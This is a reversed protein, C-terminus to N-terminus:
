SIENVCSLLWVHAGNAVFSEGTGFLEFNMRSRMCTIISSEKYHKGNLQLLKIPCTFSRVRAIDTAFREGVIVDQFQVLHRVQPLSQVLACDARLRVSRLFRQLGVDFHM